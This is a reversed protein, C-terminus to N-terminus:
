IRFEAHRFEVRHGNGVTTALDRRDVEGRSVLTTLANRVRKADIKTASEISMASWWDNGLKRLATLIAKGDMRSQSKAKNEVVPLAPVPYPKWESQRLASTYSRGGNRACAINHERARAENYPIINAM